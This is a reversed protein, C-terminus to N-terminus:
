VQYKELRLTLEAALFNLSPHPSAQRQLMSLAVSTDSRILVAREHMKHGWKEVARVVALAEMVAQSSAEGYQVKLLQAENESIMGAVAEVPFLVRPSTDQVKVLITGWGKPCADTIIGMSVRHKKM